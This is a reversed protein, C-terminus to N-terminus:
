PPFHKCVRERFKRSVLSSRIEAACESEPTAEIGQAKLCRRCACDPVLGSICWRSFTVKIRPDNVIEGLQKVWDSM